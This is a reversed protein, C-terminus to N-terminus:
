CPLEHVDYSVRSSKVFHFVGEGDVFARHLDRPGIREPGFVDLDDPGIIQEGTYTARGSFTAPRPTFIRITIFYEKGIELIDNNM